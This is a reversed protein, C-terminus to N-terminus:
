PYVTKITIGAAELAQAGKEIMNQHGNTATDSEDTGHMLSNMFHLCFQGDFENGAITDDGHPIAYISGVFQEGAANTVVMPRRQYKNQIDLQEANEVGYLSCLVATDAATLPEVDAHNGASQVKIKFSKGTAIDILTAQENKNLIVGKNEFWDVNYIVSNYAPEAPGQTNYRYLETLIALMTKVGVVGDAALNNERQINKVAEETISGFHGTLEGEYYGLKKLVEQIWLVTNNADDVGYKESNYGLESFGDTEEDTLYEVADAKVWGGSIQVWGNRSNMVFCIADLDITGIMGSSKNPEAYVSCKSVAIRVPTPRHPEPEPTPEPTATPEPTPTPTATPRLTPRPTSTPHITPKPSDSEWRVEIVNTYVEDGFRIDISTSTTHSDAMACAMGLLMLLAMLCATWKMKNM